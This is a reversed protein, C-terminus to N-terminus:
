GKPAMRSRPVLDERLPPTNHRGLVPAESAKWPKRTENHSKNRRNSEEKRRTCQMMDNRKKVWSFLNCPDETWKFRPFECSSKEKYCIRRINISSNYINGSKQFWGYCVQLYDCAKERKLNPGWVKSKIREGNEPAGGFIRVNKSRGLGESGNLGM